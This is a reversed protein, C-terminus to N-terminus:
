SLVASFSNPTTTAIAASDPKYPTGIIGTLQVSICHGCLKTFSGRLTAFITDSLATLM